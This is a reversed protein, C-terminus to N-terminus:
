LLTTNRPRRARERAHPGYRDIAVSVRAISLSAKKTKKERRKEEETRKEEERTKKSEVRKKKYRRENRKKFSRGFRVVVGGHIEGGINISKM